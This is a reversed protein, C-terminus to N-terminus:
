PEMTRRHIFVRIRGLLHQERMTWPNEGHNQQHFKSLSGWLQQRKNRGQNGSDLLKSLISPMFTELLGVQIIMETLLHNIVITLLDGLYPQEGQLHGLHSIFPPNSVM